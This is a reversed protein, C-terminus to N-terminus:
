WLIGVTPVFSVELRDLPGPIFGRVLTMMQIRLGRYRYGVSLMGGIGSVWQSGAVPNYFRLHYGAGASVFLEDGIEMEAMTTLDFLETQSYDAVIGGGLRFSGGFLINQHAKVQIAQSSGWLFLDSALQTSFGIDSRILAWILVFIFSTRQAM